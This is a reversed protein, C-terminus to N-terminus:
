ATLGTSEADKKENEKEKKQTHLSTSLLSAGYLARLYPKYRPKGLAWGSVSCVPRNM